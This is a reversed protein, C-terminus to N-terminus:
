IIGEESLRLTVSVPNFDNGLVEDDFEKLIRIVEHVAKHKKCIGLLYSNLYHYEAPDPFPEGCIPCMYRRAEEIEDEAWYEQWAECNTTNYEPLSM